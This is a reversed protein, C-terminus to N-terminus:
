SATFVEDDNGEDVLNNRAVVAFAAFTDTLGLSHIAEIIACVLPVVNHFSPGSFGERSAM